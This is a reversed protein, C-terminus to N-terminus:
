GNRDPTQTAWDAVTPAPRRSSMALFAFAHSLPWSPDIHDRRVVPGNSTSLLASGREASAVSTHGVEYAAAVVGSTAHAFAGFPWAFHRGDDLRDALLQKARGLDDLLEDQALQAMNRHHLSHSGIEHGRSKLEELEAWELTRDEIYRESRFFSAVSARSGLGVGAPPVFLCVSGGHREAIEAAAASSAFGDDISVCFSPQAVPKPATASDFAESYTIFRHSATLTGLLKDLTELGHGLVSHFYIWKTGPQRLEQPRLLAVGSGVSSLVAHRAMSRLDLSM